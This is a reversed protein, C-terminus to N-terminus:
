DEGTELVGAICCSQHAWRQAERTAFHRCACRERCVFSRHHASPYKCRPAGSGATLGHWFRLCSCESRCLPSIRNGPTRGRIRALPPTEVLCSRGNSEEKEM